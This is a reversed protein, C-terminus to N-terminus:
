WIARVRKGDEAIFEILRPKLKVEKMSYKPEYLPKGAQDYIAINISSCGRGFQVHNSYALRPFFFFADNECRWLFKRDDATFGVFYSELLGPDRRVIVLRNGRVNAYLSSGPSVTGDVTVKAGWVQPYWSWYRWFSFALGVVFVIAAAAVIWAMVKVLRESM